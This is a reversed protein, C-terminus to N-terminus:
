TQKIVSWICRLLSMPAVFAMRSFAGASVSYSLGRDFALPFASEYLGIFFARQLRYTTLDVIEVRIDMADCWTQCLSRLEENTLVYACNLLWQYTEAHGVFDYVNIHAADVLHREVRKILRKKCEIRRVWSPVALYRRIHHQITVVAEKEVNRPLCLSEKITRFSERQECEQLCLTYLSPPMIHSSYM